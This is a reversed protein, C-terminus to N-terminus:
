EVEGRCSKPFLSKSVKNLSGHALDGPSLGVFGKTEQLPLASIIYYLAAYTIQALTKNGEMSLRGNRWVDLWAQTHSSQLTQAMFASVGLDIYNFM